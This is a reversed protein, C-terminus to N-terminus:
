LAIATFKLQKVGKKTMLEQSLSKIGDAKGRVAIIELCKNKTLHIHM